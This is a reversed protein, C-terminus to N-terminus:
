RARTSGAHRTEVGAADLIRLVVRAAEGREITLVYHRPPAGESVVAWAEGAFHWRPAFSTADLADLGGDTFVLLLNGPRPATSLVRGPLSGVQCSTLRVGTGVRSGCRAM